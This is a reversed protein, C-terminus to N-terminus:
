LGIQTGIRRRAFLSERNAIYNRDNPNLKRLEAQFDEKSLGQGTTGAATSNLLTAPTPVFGQGKAFQVVLEAAAKISATKGSDFMQAVALKFAQPAAKNFAAAAANWNAEGGALKHVEGTNEAAKQEVVRVISQALGILGEANAGAKERLYAIDLMESNGTSLAKSFVRDFDLGTGLAKFAQAMSRLTPDELTNPDLVNLSDSPAETSEAPKAPEAAQMAKTLAAVAEALADTGAAPTPAAPAAPAAPAPQLNPAIPQVFGPTPNPPPAAPENLPPTVFGNTPVIEAM